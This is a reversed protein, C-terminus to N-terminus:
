APGRIVRVALAGASAMLLCALQGLGGVVSGLRMVQNYYNPITNSGYWDMGRGWLLLAAALTASLAVISAGVPSRGQSWALAGFLAYVVALTLIPFWWSDDPVPPYNPDTLYFYANGIACMACLGITARTLILPM